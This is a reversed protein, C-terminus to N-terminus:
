NELAGEAIWDHLLARQALSLGSGYLPIRSGFPPSESTKRVIFSACPDGPVIIDEGTSAGGRRLSAYTEVSFGTAMFGIPTRPGSPQHCPCGEELLPAIDMAYSVDTSPDGDEPDCRGAILDGQHPEEFICGCVSCCALLAIARRM